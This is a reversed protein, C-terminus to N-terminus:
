AKGDPVCMVVPEDDFPRVAYVCRIYGPFIPDPYPHVAPHAQVHAADKADTWVVFVENPTRRTPVIDRSSERIVMARGSSGGCFRATNAVGAVSSGGEGSGGESRPRDVCIDMGILIHARRSWFRRYMEKKSQTQPGFELANRTPWEPDDLLVPVRDLM